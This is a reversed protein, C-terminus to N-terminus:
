SLLLIRVNGGTSNRNKYHAHFQRTKVEDFSLKEKGGRMAKVRCV